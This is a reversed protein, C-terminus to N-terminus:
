EDEEIMRDRKTHNVLDYTKILFEEHISGSPRAKAFKVLDAITLIEKLDREHVDPFEVTKLKQLIEETTSELAPVNYRNELYERAVFTLQSQYEKIDGTEWMKGQKLSDLKELAIEHAPRIIVPAEIIEEVEEKKFRKWLYYGLFALAIGLLAYALWLFDRWDAPEEIIPKIGAIASTTDQHVYDSPPLVLVRKNMTRMMTAVSNTDIDVQLGPVDFVGYDWIRGVVHVNYSLRGNSRVWEETKPKYELQNVPWNGYDQIEFDAYQLDATSDKLMENLNLMSDKTILSLSRVANEYPVNVRYNIKFLEGVELSDKEPIAVTVIQAQLSLSCLLTLIFIGIRM